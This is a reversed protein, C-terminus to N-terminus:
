AVTPGPNCQGHSVTDYDGIFALDAANLAGSLPKAFTTTREEAVQMGCDLLLARFARSQSTSYLFRAGGNRGRTECLGFLTKMAQRREEPPCDPDAIGWDIWAACDPVIYVFLAAAALGAETRAVYGTTPLCDAPPALWGRRRWIEVLAGYHAERHYAEFRM